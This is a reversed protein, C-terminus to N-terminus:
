LAGGSGRAPNLGINHRTTNKMPGLQIRIDNDRESEFSSRCGDLLFSKVAHAGLLPKIPEILNSARYQGEYGRSFKRESARVIVM